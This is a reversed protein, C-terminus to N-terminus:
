AVVSFPGHLHPADFLIASPLTESLSRGLKFSRRGLDLVRSVSSLSGLCCSLYCSLFFKGLTLRGDLRDHLRRLLLQSLCFSGCGASQAFSVLCALLSLGLSQGCISCPCSFIISLPRPKCALAPSLTVPGLHQLRKSMFEYGGINAAYILPGGQAILCTAFRALAIARPELAVELRVREAAALQSM